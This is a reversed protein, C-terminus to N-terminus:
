TNKLNLQKEQIKKELSEIERAIGEDLVTRDDIVHPVSYLLYLMVEDVNEKHFEVEDMKKEKGDLWHILIWKIYGWELKLFFKANLFYRVFFTVYHRSLHPTLVSRVNTIWKVYTVWDQPIMKQHVVPYTKISKLDWHPFFEKNM